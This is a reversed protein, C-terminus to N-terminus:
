FPLEQDPELDAHQLEHIVPRKREGRPWGHVHILVGAALLELAVLRRTNDRTVPLLVGDVKRKVTELRDCIKHLRGTLNHRTTTQVMILEGNGVAVLDVFGFLDIRRRAHESWHESIAV